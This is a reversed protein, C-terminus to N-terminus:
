RPVLRKVIEIPRPKESSISALRTTEHVMKLGRVFYEGPQDIIQELQFGVSNLMRGVDTGSPLRHNKVPGSIQDHIANIEKSSHAHMIVLEGGPKLVRWCELLALQKGKIHPLVHFAIILDFRNKQFPLYRACACLVIPGPHFQQAAIHTMAEAFDCAFLQTDSRTLRILFPFLVGAGCGLDLISRYRSFDLRRILHDIKENSVLTLSHWRAAMQEFYQRTILNEVM